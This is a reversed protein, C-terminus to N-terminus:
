STKGIRPRAHDPRGKRVLLLSHASFVVEVVKSQRRVIQVGASRRRRAKRQRYQSPVQALLRMRQAPRSASGVAFRVTLGFRFGAGFSLAFTFAFAAFGLAFTFGLGFAFAFAFAFAGLFAAFGLRLGAARLTAAFFFFGAGGFRAFAFGLFYSSKAASKRLRRQRM